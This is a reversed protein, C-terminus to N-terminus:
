SELYDYPVLKYYEFTIELGNMFNAANDGSGTMYTRRISSYTPNQGDTIRINNSDLLKKNKMIIDRVIDELDLLGWTTDTGSLASNYADFDRGTFCTVIVGRITYVYKILSKGVEYKSNTTTHGSFTFKDMKTSDLDFVIAPFQGRINQIHYINNMAFNSLDRYAIYPKGKDKDNLRSDASCLDVLKQLIYKSNLSSIM